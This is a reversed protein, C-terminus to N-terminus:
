FPDQLKKRLAAIGNLIDGLLGKHLCKWHYSFASMALIDKGSNFFNEQHLLNDKWKVLLQREM